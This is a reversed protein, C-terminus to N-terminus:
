FGPDIGQRSQKMLKRVDMQDEIYINYIKM